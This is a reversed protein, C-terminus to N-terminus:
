TCGPKPLIGSNEDVRAKKLGKAQPNDLTTFIGANLELPMGSLCDKKLSTGV